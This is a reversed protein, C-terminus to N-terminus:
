MWNLSILHFVHLYKPPFFSTPLFFLFSIDKKLFTSRKMQAPASLVSPQWTMSTSENTRYSESIEAKILVQCNWSQIIMRHGSTHHWLVESLIVVISDHCGLMAQHIGCALMLMYHACVCACKQWGRFFNSRLVVVATAWGQDWINM